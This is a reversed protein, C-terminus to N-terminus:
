RIITEKQLIQEAKERETIDEGSSIIGTIDGGDEQIIANHWSILREEGEKTLIYNKFCDDQSIKGELAKTLTSRVGEQIRKPLFNTVWNKGVIEKKPYGLIECGRKNIQTVNFDRDLVMLLVDAIDFYKQALDREEKIRQELEIRQTQEVIIATIASEDNYEMKKMQASVWIITGEKTYLRFFFEPVIGKKEVQLLNKTVIHRDDPHIITLIRELSFAMLEEPEYGSHESIVDNAFTIKNDKVIVIGAVSQEALARFKEKSEQLKREAERRETIDVVIGEIFGESQFFKASLSLWIVEHDKRTMPIEYDAIVGQRLKAVIEDRIVPELYDSTKTISEKLEEVSLYGLLEVMKKNAELFRGTRSDIRFIGANINEFLNQYKERTQANATDDIIVSSISVLKGDIDYAGINFQIWYCEEGDQRIIKYELVSPVKENAL